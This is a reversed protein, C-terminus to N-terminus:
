PAKRRLWGFARGRLEHHVAVVALMALSGTIFLAGLAEARSLTDPVVMGCVAVVGAAAFGPKAVGDRFWRGLQGPLLRRHMLLQSAVAYLLNMGSWACAAGWAGFRQAALLAAPVYLVVAALNMYVGLSTWGSALQLAWPLHIIAYAASGVALVALLEAAREVLLVNGSWAWLVHNPMLALVSAAPLVALALAGCAVHYFAALGADDRAAVLRTLRPFVGDYLPRVLQLLGGSVAAALAYFGFSELSLLRSLIVRDVQTLAIGAISVLSVGAAFRWVELLRARSFAAVLFGQVDRWLFLAVIATSLGSVIAQWAFFTQVTRDVLLLAAVAGAARITALVAQLVSVHLQRGRGILGGAYFKFPWQLALAVGILRLAGELSHPSLRSPGLWRHAIVPALGWVVALLLGAVGWYVIELTRLVDRDQDRHEAALRRTITTTLGLDFVSLLAALTVFVGILAYSEIGILGIYVPVFLLSVLASWINAAFSAGVAPLLRRRQVHPSPM